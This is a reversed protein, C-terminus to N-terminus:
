SRYLFSLIWIFNPISPGNFQDRCVLGTSSIFWWPKISAAMTSPGHYKKITGQKLQTTIGQKRQWSYRLDSASNTWQSMTAYMPYLTKRLCLHLDGILGGVEGSPSERFFLGRSVRSTWSWVFYHVIYWNIPLVQEKSKRPFYLSTCVRFKHGKYNKSTKREKLSGIFQSIVPKRCPM